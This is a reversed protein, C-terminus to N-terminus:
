VRKRQLRPTLALWITTALGRNAIVSWGDGSICWTDAGSGSTSVHIQFAFKTLQSTTLTNIHKYYTM